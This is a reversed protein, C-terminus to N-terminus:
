PHPVALNDYRYRFNTLVGQGDQPLVDSVHLEVWRGDDDVFKFAQNLFAPTAVNARPARTQFFNAFASATPDNNGLSLWKVWVKDVMAHHAYFFPDRAASQFASMNGHILAHVTDHPGSSISTRATATGLFGAGTMQQLLLNIEHRMGADAQTVGLNNARVRFIGPLGLPNGVAQQYPVPLQIHNTGATPVTFDFYPLAFAPAAARDAPDASEALLKRLIREHYYLFARHWPPFFYNFHVDMGSAGACYYAHLSAQAILSRPDWGPLREMLDYAHQLITVEAPTLTTADKRVRIPSTGPEAAFPKPSAFRGAPVSPPAASLRGCTGCAAGRNPLLRADPGSALGFLWAGAVGAPAGAPVPPVATTPEIRWTPDWGV